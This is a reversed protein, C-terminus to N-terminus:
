KQQVISYFHLEAVCSTVCSIQNKEAYACLQCLGRDVIEELNIGTNVFSDCSFLSPHLSELRRLQTLWWLVTYLYLSCLVLVSSLWTWVDCWRGNWEAADATTARCFDDRSMWQCDLALIVRCVSLLSLLRFVSAAPLLCFLNTKSCVLIDTVYTPCSRIFSSRAVIDSAYACWYTFKRFSARWSTTGHLNTTKLFAWWSCCAVYTFIKWACRIM